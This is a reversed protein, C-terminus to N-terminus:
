QISKNNEELRSCVSKFTELLDTKGDFVLADHDFVLVYLYTNLILMVSKIIDLYKWGWKGSFDHDVIENDIEKCRFVCDLTGGTKSKSYLFGVCNQSVYRCTNAFVSRLCLDRSLSPTSMIHSVCQDKVQNLYTEVESHAESSIQYDNRNLRLSQYYKYFGSARQDLVMVFSKVTNVIDFFWQANGGSAVWAKLNWLSIMYYVFDSLIQPFELNVAAKEEYLVVVMNHEDSSKGRARCITYTAASPIWKEIWVMLLKLERIYPHLHQANVFDYIQQIANKVFKEVTNECEKTIQAQGCLWLFYTQIDRAVSNEMWSPVPTPVPLDMLNEFMISHSSKDENWEFERRFKDRIPEDKAVPLGFRLTVSQM